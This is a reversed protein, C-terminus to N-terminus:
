TTKCKNEMEREAQSKRIYFPAFDKPDIATETLEYALSAVAAARQMNIHSPAISNGSELIKEKHAIAGDGLFVAEKNYSRIINFVYELDDALYDTLRVLKGKKIRYLATYVQNRRADMIPVIIKASEFVNYAMADLSPVPVIEKNLGMALGKAAAAGIRLGTFSGPGSSCAIYDIDKPEVDLTKFLVDMMPMLTQSHTKKFNTTFEGITINKDALAISAAMGTSDIGLIVAQGGM